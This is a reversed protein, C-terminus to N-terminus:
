ENMDMFELPISFFKAACEMGDIKRKIKYVRGYSGEGLYHEKTQEIFYAGEGSSREM